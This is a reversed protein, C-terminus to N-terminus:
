FRDAPIGSSQIVVQEILTKVLIDTGSLLM